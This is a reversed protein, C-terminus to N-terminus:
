LGGRSAKDARGRCRGALGHAREQLALHVARDGGQSLLEVTNEVQWVKVGLDSAIKKLYIDKM